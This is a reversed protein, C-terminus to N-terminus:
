PTVLKALADYDIDTESVLVYKRKSNYTLEDTGLEELLKGGVKPDISEFNYHGNNPFPKDTDINKFLKIAAKDETLVAGYLEVPEQGKKPKPYGEVMIIYYPTM